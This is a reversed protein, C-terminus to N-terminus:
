NSFTFEEDSLSLKDGPNLATEQNPQLKVNNLFTGNTTKLDTVYTIGGKNTFRVHTRSISTNDSVCYNVRSLEKGIVFNDSNIKIKEGTKQM